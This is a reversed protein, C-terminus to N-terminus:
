SPLHTQLTQSPWGFSTIDRDSTGSALPLSQVSGQLVSLCDAPYSLSPNQARRCGLLWLSCKGCSSTPLVRMRPGSTCVTAKACSCNSNGPLTLEARFSSRPCDLLVPPFLPRVSSKPYALQRIHTCMPVTLVYLCGKIAFTPPPNTSHFSNSLPVWHVELHSHLSGPISCATLLAKLVWATVWRRFSLM